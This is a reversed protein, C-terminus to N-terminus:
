RKPRWVSRGGGGGRNAVASTVCKQFCEHQMVRVGSEKM